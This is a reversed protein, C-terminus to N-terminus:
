FSYFYEITEDKKPGIIRWKLKIHNNTILLEASYLDKGCIHPEISAWQTNTIPELEFLIVENDYGFRSHSLRLKNESLQTWIYENFIKTEKQINNLKFSGEEIFFLKNGKLCTIVKGQGIGNWNTSSKEGATAKFKFNQINILSTFLDM